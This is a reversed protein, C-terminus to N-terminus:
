EEVYFLLAKPYREARMVHEAQLRLLSRQTTSVKAGTAEAIARCQAGPHKKVYSIIGAYSPLMSFDKKTQTQTAM